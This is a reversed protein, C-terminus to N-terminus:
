ALRFLGPMFPCIHGWMYSTGLIPLDCYGFNSTPPRVLETSPTHLEQDQFQPNSGWM